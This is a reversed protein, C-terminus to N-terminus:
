SDGLGEGHWRRVDDSIGSPMRDVDDISRLVRRRDNHKTKVVESRDAFRRNAVVIPRDEIRVTV